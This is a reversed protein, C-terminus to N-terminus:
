PKRRAAAQAIAADIEAEIFRASAGIHIPRPLRGAEIDRYISARSRALRECLERVSLLRGTTTQESM